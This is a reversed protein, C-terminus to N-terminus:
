NKIIKWKSQMGEVTLLLFYVGQPYTSMDYILSSSGDLTTALLHGNIDTLVYQVPSAPEPGRIEIKLAGKTPNPYILVERKGIMERQPALAATDTKHASVKNLVVTNYRGTRNGAQDYEYRIIQSQAMQVSLLIQLLLALTLINKM